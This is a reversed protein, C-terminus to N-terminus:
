RRSKAFSIQFFADGFHCKSVAVNLRLAAAEVVRIMDGNDNM